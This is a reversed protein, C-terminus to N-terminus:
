TLNTSLATDAVKAIYRRGMKTAKRCAHPYPPCMRSKLGRTGVPAIEGFVVAHWLFRGDPAGSWVKDFNYSTGTPKLGGGM